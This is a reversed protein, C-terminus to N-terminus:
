LEGAEIMRIFTSIDAGYNRPPPPVRHQDAENHQDSERSPKMTRLKELVCDTAWQRTLCAEAWGSLSRRVSARWGPSAQKRSHIGETCLIKARRVEFSARCGLRNMVRILSNLSEPWHGASRPQWLM